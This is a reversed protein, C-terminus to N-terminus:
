NCFQVFSESTRPGSYEKTVKGGQFLVLKPFGKVDYKTMTDRSINSDCNALVYKTTPDKGAAENFAPKTNNCHGCWPAYFMVFCKDASKLTSELDEDSKAEQPAKDSAVGGQRGSRAGNCSRNPPFLLIMLIFLLIGVVIVCGILGNGSRSPADNIERLLDSKALASPYSSFRSTMYLPQLQSSDYDRCKM